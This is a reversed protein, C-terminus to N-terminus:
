KRMCIISYQQEGGSNLIVSMATFLERVKIMYNSVDNQEYLKQAEKQYFNGTNELLREEFLEKYLQLQSGQPDEHSQVQLMLTTIVTSEPPDVPFILYTNYFKSTPTFSM